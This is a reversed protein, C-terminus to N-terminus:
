HARRYLGERDRRRAAAPGEGAADRGRTRRAADCEAVAAEAAKRDAAFTEVTDGGEACAGLALAALIPLAAKM